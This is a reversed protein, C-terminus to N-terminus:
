KSKAKEQSQLEKIEKKMDAVDRILAALDRRIRAADDEVLLEQAASKEAETPARLTHHIEQVPPLESFEPARKACGTSIAVALACLSLPALRISM